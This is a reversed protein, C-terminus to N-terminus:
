KAYINGKMNLGKTSKCKPTHETLLRCRSKMAYLMCKLLYKKVIRYTGTECDKRANFLNIYKFLKPCYRTGQYITLSM